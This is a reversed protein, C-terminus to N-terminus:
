RCCVPTAFAAPRRRATPPKLLVLLQVAECPRRSRRLHGLRLRHLGRLLSLLLHKGLLHRCLQLRLVLARRWICLVGRGRLSSGHACVKCAAIRGPQLQLALPLQRRLQPQVVWWHLCRWRCCSCPPRLLGVLLIQRVLHRLQGGM